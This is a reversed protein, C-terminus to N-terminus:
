CAVGYEIKQQAMNLSFTCVYKTEKKYFLCQMEGIQKAMAGTCEDPKEKVKMASYIDKATAGSLQFRIHSDKPEEESPDLYNKATVAYTGTVPKWDAASLDPISAAMLAFFLFTKMPNESHVHGCNM